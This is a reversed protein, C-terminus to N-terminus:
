FFFVYFIGTPFLPLFGSLCFLVFCFVLGWFDSFILFPFVVVFFYFLLCLVFSCLLVFLCVLCYVIKSHRLCLTNSSPFTSCRQLHVTHCPFVPHLFPSNDKDEGTHKIVSIIISNNYIRIIIFARLM